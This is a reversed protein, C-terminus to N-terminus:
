GHIVCASEQENCGSTMGRIQRDSGRDGWDRYTAHMWREAHFDHADMPLGPTAQCHLGHFDGDVARMRFDAPHDLRDRATANGAIALDRRPCPQRLSRTQNTVHQTFRTLINGQRPMPDHTHITAQRKHWATDLEDLLPTTQRGFADLHFTAPDVNPAKAPM